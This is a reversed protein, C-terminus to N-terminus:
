SGVEWSDGVELEQERRHRDGLSWRRPQAPAGDWKIFLGRVWVAMLALVCLWSTMEQFCHCFCSEKRAGDVSRAGTGQTQRTLLPRQSLSTKM